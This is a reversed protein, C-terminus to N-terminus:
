STQSDSDTGNINVIYSTANDIKEWTVKKENLVLVPSDLKTVTPTVVVPEEKNEIKENDNAEKNPDSNSDCSGLAFALGLISVIGLIRKKM